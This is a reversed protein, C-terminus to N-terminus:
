RELVCIVVTQYLLLLTVSIPPKKRRWWQKVFHLSAPWPTASPPPITYSPITYSPGNRHDNTTSCCQLMLM